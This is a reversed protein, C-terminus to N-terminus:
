HLNATCGVNVQDAALPRDISSRVGALAALHIVVSPRFKDFVRRLKQFERIDCGHFDFDGARGVERLNSQKLPPPYCENLNDVVALRFGRRLLAEALHSGIFGGGGTLLISASSDTVRAGPELVVLFFQSQPGLSLRSFGTQSPWKRGLLQTSLLSFHKRVASFNSAIRTM